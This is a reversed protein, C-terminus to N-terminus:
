AAHTSPIGMSRRDSGIRLYLSRNEDSWSRSRRFDPRLSRASMDLAYKPKDGLGYTDPGPPKRRHSWCFRKKLCARLSMSNGLASQPERRHPILNWCYPQRKAQRHGSLVFLMSASMAPIVWGQGLVVFRAHQTSLSDRFGVRNAPVTGRLPCPMPINLRVYHAKRGRSPNTISFGDRREVKIPM